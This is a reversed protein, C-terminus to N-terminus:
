GVCCVRLFDDPLPNKIPFSLVGGGNSSSDTTPTAAAADDAEMRLIASITEEMIYGNIELLAQLPEADWKPFISRLIEVGRVIAEPTPVSSRGRRLTVPPPLTGPGPGAGPQQQYFHSASTSKRKPFLAGLFGNEKRRRERFRPSASRQATPTSFPPPTHRRSADGSKWLSKRRSTPPSSAHASAGFLGGHHSGPM